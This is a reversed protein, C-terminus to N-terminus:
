QDRSRTLDWHGAIRAVEARVAIRSAKRRLDRRVMKRSAGRRGGAGWPDIHLVERLILRLPARRVNTSVASDIATGDGGSKAARTRRLRLLEECGKILDGVRLLLPSNLLHSASTGSLGAVSAPDRRHFASAPLDFLHDPSRCSLAGARWHSHTVPGVPRAGQALNAPLCISRRTKPNLRAVAVVVSGVRHRTL